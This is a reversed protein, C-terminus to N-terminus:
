EASKMFVVGLPPLTLNLSFPKDHMPFPDANFGGYNGNGSGCYNGADSNLLEKWFGGKPVGVRYDRRVVPTFNCVCLVTDNSTKAKRLFSIVSQNADHFDVWEFGGWDFDHEHLAPEARYVRNLDKVWQQVGRHFPFQLVHWELSEDHNWERVQGFEAGMFLLKKGPHGFMYGFLLRLNAFRQWEDGPMKGVLSGKGQTVEDHSFPLIFNEAFAYWLSFTLQDHHYKRYVSEQSFYKLTDNMWGMNWKFGFGLGGRYTPKSVMPWATSEEAITQVDPYNEYVAHNFRKLFSVAEINENGGFQNPVWEGQKRSYDLYLMSAVADVRLGDVHYKELWFLASSILFNRVEHRGYNFISSKWDPHFGKRPDEHEFLCTGDFYSLGHQDTPFHSPVWDLIVGINHQHLQDVLYMFDQPTGFRSTPAFYGVTQYGWSPYFPHEMVPLFEVHTFGMEACYAVLYKAMERYSLSRNGEEPVHRWSGPHVEYISIPADHDNKARRTKMWEADTWRYELDWVVSGTKQPTEWHFAFPDGKEVTYGNWRSRIFYKYVNGKKLGPVFGEWIGSNDWRPYLPHADHDWFNFDGMVSVKEANPAWVAFCTGMVGDVEMIHAGLKEYLRFHSGEKFLYIDHETLLSTPKITNEM